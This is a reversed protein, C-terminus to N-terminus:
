GLRKEREELMREALNFAAISMDEPSFCVEVRSGALIGTLAAAAFYDKLSMGEKLSSFPFASPNPAHTM